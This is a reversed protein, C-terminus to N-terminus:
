DRWWNLFPEPALQMLGYCALVAVAFIALYPLFRRAKPIVASGITAVPWLYFSMAAVVMVCWFQVGGHLTLAADFGGYGISKPWQGLSFYMHVALSYFLVLVVLPPLAAFIAGKTSLHNKM